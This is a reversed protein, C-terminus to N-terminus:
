KFIPTANKIKMVVLNVYYTLVRGLPQKIESLRESQSVDGFISALVIWQDGDGQLSFARPVRSHLSQFKTCVWLHESKIIPRWM